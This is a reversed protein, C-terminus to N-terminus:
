IAALFRLVADNFFEPDQGGVTRPDPQVPDPQM